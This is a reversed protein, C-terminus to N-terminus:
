ASAWPPQPTVKAIAFDLFAKVKPSLHRDSPYVLYIDRSTLSWQNLLRMLRGAQIDELVLVSPLCAIGSHQLVLQKIFLFDNAHIRSSIRIAEETAGNQFVWKTGGPITEANLGICHHHVLDQPTLPEGKRAVYEPSACVWYPMAGLKHAVGSDGWPAARFALDIGESVIDVYRNTLILEASVREYRNLFEVLWHHLVSTAFVVSASIRLTGHPVAQLATVTLNAEELEGLIKACREFYVRGVETLNVKRTTRQLLRTGLTEELQAIKRSITTKPIDLARAAGIFSGAQVVKVFIAMTNLDFQPPMLSQKVPPIIRKM